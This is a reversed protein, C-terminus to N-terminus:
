KHRKLQNRVWDDSQNEKKEVETQNKEKDKEKEYEEKLKAIDRGKIAITISFIFYMVFGVIALIPKKAINSIDGIFKLFINESDM